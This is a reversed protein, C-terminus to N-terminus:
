FMRGGHKYPRYKNYELKEQLAFELDMNYYDAMDCIRIIADALEVPVGEPKMTIRQKDTIYGEPPVSEAYYIERPGHGDRLEETAESIESHILLLCEAATKPNAYFGKEVSTKHATEMIEKITLSM